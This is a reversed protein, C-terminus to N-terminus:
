YKSDSIYFSIKNKHWADHLITNFRNFFCAITRHVYTETIGVIDVEKEQLNYCLQLLSHNDNGVNLANMIIYFIRINNLDLKNLKKGRYENSITLNNM